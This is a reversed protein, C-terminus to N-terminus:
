AYVEGELRDSCAEPSMEAYAYAAEVAQYAEARVQEVEAESMIGDAILRAQWRKIPCKEKWREIEETTRYRNPDNKSHGRWRYTVAEILSPGLGQRARGAAQRVAHYVAMVDNGDVTLGPMNYAAARGSLREVSSAKRVPTSYAYQNNECVFIVPLRWLAAMNMAEHFAGNNVAGDGFFVLVVQRRQQMKISLGVGVALPLSGAVIGNTGLHGHRLDVFHMSGGRGRCCGTEKGLFEAMLTNVDTGKAISHGHGRHTSFLYDDDELAALAGVASAEQGICLHMTGHLKGAAFIQEAKEEFARILWMRRLMVIRKERSPSAESPPALVLVSATAKHTVANMM